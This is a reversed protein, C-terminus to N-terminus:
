DNQDPWGDVRAKPLARQLEKIKAESVKAHYLSFSELQTLKKLIPVAANSVRTSSLELRRLKPLGILHTLGPGTISASDSLDLEKLEKLGEFHALAADTLAQHHLRLDELRTLRVLHAAGADTIANPFPLGAPHGGPPSPPANSM